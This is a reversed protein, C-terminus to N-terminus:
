CFADSDGGDKLSVIVYLAIGIIEFVFGIAPYETRLHVVGDAVLIGSIFAISLKNMDRVEMNHIIFVISLVRVQM